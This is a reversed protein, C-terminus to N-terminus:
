NFPPKRPFPQEENSRADAIARIVEEGEPSYHLGECRIFDGDVKVVYFSLFHPSSFSVVEISESVTFYVLNLGRDPHIVSRTHIEDGYVRVGAVIEDLPPLLELESMQSKSNSQESSNNLQRELHAFATFLEEYDSKTNWMKHEAVTAEDKYCGCVVM